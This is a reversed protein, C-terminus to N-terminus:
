PHDTHLVILLLLLPFGLLSCLLQLVTLHYKCVESYYVAARIMFFTERALMIHNYWAHRTTLDWAASMDLLLSCM